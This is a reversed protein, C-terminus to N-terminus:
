EKRRCFNFCGLLAALGAAPLGRGRGRGRLGEEALLASGVGRVARCRAGRGPGLQPVGLGRGQKAATPATRRRGGGGSRRRARGRRQRAVALGPVRDRGKRRQGQPLLPLPLDLGKLALSSARSAGVVAVAGAVAAGVGFRALPPDRGELGGERLEPLQGGADLGGPGGCRLPLLQRLVLLPPFSLAPRLAPEGGRGAGGGRVLSPGLGGGRGGLPGRRRGERPLQLQLVLGRRSLAPLEGPELDLAVPAGGVGRGLLVPAPRERRQARGGLGRPRLPPREVVRPLLSCLRLPAGPGRLLRLLGRGRCQALGPLLPGVPGPLPPDRRAPLSGRGGGGGGGSSRSGSGGSRGGLAGALVLEEGVEGGRLLGATRGLELAGAELGAAPERALGGLPVGGGRGRPGGGRPRRPRGLAAGRGGGRRPLGAVGLPGLPGPGRRAGRLRGGVAALQESGGPGFGACRRPLALLLPPFPSSSSSSPRRRRRRGGAAVAVGGVGDSGRRSQHHRLRLGRAQLERLADDAPSQLAPLSQQLPSLSLPFSSLSHPSFLSRSFLFCFFAM